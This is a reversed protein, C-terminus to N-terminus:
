PALRSTEWKKGVKRYLIRDHMRVPRGQWFEIVTPKLLYGGWFEPRTVEKNKFQQEIREFNKVLEKRSQVESSQKSAWAAIQSKRPRKSFYSESNLPSMKKVKGEIRVQRNLERWYFCLSASPNEDLEVAKRSKYNTFFRFGSIDFGKLLVIRVSPKGNSATALAVANADTLNHDLAEDFWFTFQEIPDNSVQDQTLLPGSYERRLKENKKYDTIDGMFFNDSITLNM